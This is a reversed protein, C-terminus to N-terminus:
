GRQWWRPCCPCESLLCLSLARVFSRVFPRVFVVFLLVIPFLQALRPFHHGVSCLFSAGTAQPAPNFPREYVRPPIPPSFLLARPYDGSSCPHPSVVACRRWVLVCLYVCTRTVSVAAARVCVVRVRFLLLRRLPRPPPPSLSRPWAVHLHDSSSFRAAVVPSPFSADHPLCLRSSFQSVRPARPAGVLSLAVRTAVLSECSHCCCRWRRLLLCLCRPLPSLSLCRRVAAVSTGCVVIPPASNQRRPPSIVKTCVPAPLPVCLAAALLSPSGCLRPRSAWRRLFRRRRVVASPRRRRALYSFRFAVFHFGISLRLSLRVSSVVRSFSEPGPAAPASM